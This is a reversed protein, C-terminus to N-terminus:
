LAAEGREGTRVRVADGVPTVFMKGDGIKGTWLWQELDALVRNVLPDPVVIEIKL